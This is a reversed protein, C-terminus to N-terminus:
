MLLQQIVLHWFFCPSFCWFAGLQSPKVIPRINSLLICFMLIFPFVLFAQPLLQHQKNGKWVSLQFQSRFTLPNHPVSLSFFMMFAEAQKVLLIINFSIFVEFLYPSQKTDTVTYTLFMCSRAEFWYRNCFFQMRNKKILM